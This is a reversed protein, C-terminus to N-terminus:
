RHQRAEKTELKVMRGTSGFRAQKQPSTLM